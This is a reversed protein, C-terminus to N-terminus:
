PALRYIKWTREETQEYVIRDHLRHPRGQWFEFYHPILRYGGWYPPRPIHTTNSFREETQQMKKELESRHTLVTSQASAWAGIQNGRPRTRFYEDSETDAIKEVIGEVRVQRELKDWFFLLSAHPNSLLENGKKSLYNTFFVFGKEDLGKLLMVRASPKQESCTALVMANPELFDSRLVDDFWNRFQQLPNPDVEEEILYHKNYDRRINQM